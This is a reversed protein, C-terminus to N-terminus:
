KYIVNFKSDDTMYNAFVDQLRKLNESMDKTHIIMDVIEIKKVPPLTTVTTNPITPNIRNGETTASMNNMTTSTTSATINNIDITDRTHLKYNITIKKSNLHAQILADIIIYIIYIIYIYNGSYIYCM